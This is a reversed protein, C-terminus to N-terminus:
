INFILKEPYGITFDYNKIEEIDEMKEVALIHQKTVIACQDIYLKIRALMKDLEETPVELLTDNVFFSVTNVDLLKASDVSQKYNSREIPSFWTQIENITFNNISASNAYREIEEIKSTKIHKIDDEKLLMNWVEPISAEPHEEHFKAQEESLVTWKNELYDEWTTGLNSYNEPSLPNPFDIFENFINRKIYYVM